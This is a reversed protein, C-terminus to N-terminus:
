QHVSNLFVWIARKVKDVSLTEFCKSTGSGYCGKQHCPVCDRDPTVVSHLKGRPAWDRWDTPGYITITPTGVAAAIHPAASDVGVHLGSLCLVAALEDLTTKGALNFVKGRCKNAINVAKGWEEFAGVIVTPIGYEEWLWDVIHVWKAHEWEKYQWRSFPNLTVWRRYTTINDGNLLKESKRKARESIWLKPTTDKTDIGFERVLRLSQEAAGFIREKPVSPIVIHTFLRNRWLVAPCTIAVRVPAGSFFAIFAGRDDLRLDFVLDFRERRLTRLLKFQGKMNKLFDGGHRKVEFIGHIHPDAALLSGIPERLLVSVNAEPYAEKVARFTPTAWVVDGIDGLQILLISRIDISKLTNGKVLM